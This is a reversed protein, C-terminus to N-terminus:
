AGRHVEILRVAECNVLTNSTMYLAVRMIIYAVKENLDLSSDTRKYTVLENQLM